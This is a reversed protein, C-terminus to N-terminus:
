QWMLNLHHICSDLKKKESRSVGDKYVIDCKLLIKSSACIVFNIYAVSESKMLEELEMCSHLPMVLRFWQKEGMSDLFFLKMKQFHKRKDYRVSLISGFRWSFSPECKMEMMTGSAVFAKKRTKDIICLFAIRGNLIFESLLFVASIVIGIKLIQGIYFVLLMLAVILVGIALSYGGEFIYPEARNDLRRELETNM